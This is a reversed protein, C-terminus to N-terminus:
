WVFDMWDVLEVLVPSDKVRLLLERSEEWPVLDEVDYKVLSKRLDDEDRLEILEVLEEFLFVVESVDDSFFLERFDVDDLGTPVEVVDNGFLLECLEDDVSSSFVDVVVNNEFLLKCLEEDM